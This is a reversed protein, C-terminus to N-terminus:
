CSYESSHRRQCFHFAICVIVLDYGEMILSTSLLLAWFVAKRYKALAERITLLRDAADGEQARHILEIITPDNLDFGKLEQETPVIKESEMGVWSNSDISLLLKLPTALLLWRGIPEVQISKELTDFFFPSGAYLHRRAVSKWDHELPLWSPTNLYELVPFLLQSLSSSFVERLVPTLCVEYVADEVV